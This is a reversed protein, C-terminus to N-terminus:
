NVRHKLDGGTNWASHLDKSYLISYFTIGVERLESDSPFFVQPTDTYTIHIQIMPVSILEMEVEESREWLSSSSVYSCLLGQTLPSTLLPKVCYTVTDVIEEQTFSSRKPLHRVSPLALTLRDGQAAASGRMREGAACGRAGRETDLLFGRNWRTVDATM